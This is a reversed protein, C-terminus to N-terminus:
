PKEPIGTLGVFYYPTTESLENCSGELEKGDESAMTDM